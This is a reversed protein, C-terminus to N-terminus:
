PDIPRLIRFGTRDYRDTPDDFLRNSTRCHKMGRNWCGGRVIQYVEQVKDGGIWDRVNGGMGRIMYPSEDIPFDFISSPQAEKQSQQM